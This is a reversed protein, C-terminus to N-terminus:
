AVEALIRHADPLVLCSDAQNVLNQLQEPRDLPTVFLGEATERQLNSLLYLQAHQAATALEWIQQTDALKQQRARSLATTLNDAQQALELSQGLAGGIRSLVVVRGGPQVVRAAAAFARTVDAITRKGPDGEITAIVLAATRPARVHWQQELLTRGAKAVATSQGALVHTLEDGHGEIVQVVFPMGLLWGVEEVEKETPWTRPGPMANSVRLAFEARTPEDSMAPFIDGLGGHYGLVADFSIRGIVVLQDADVLTRNLYVRRGAKTTALYSLKNRQAPEHLEISVPAHQSLIDPLREAGVQPPCLLTIREAAVCANLVHEVIPLVLDALRPLDATFLICIHDDPTLAQRLPPFELPAELSRKVLAVVDEIAPSFKGRQVPVLVGEPAEIDVHELAFDLRKRAV